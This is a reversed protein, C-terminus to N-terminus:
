RDLLLRKGVKVLVQEENIMPSIVYIIGILIQHIPSLPPLDLALELVAVGIPLKLDYIITLIRLAQHYSRYKHNPSQFRSAKAFKCSKKCSSINLTHNIYSDNGKM